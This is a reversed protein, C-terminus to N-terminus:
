SYSNEFFLGKSFYKDTNPTINNGSYLGIDNPRVADAVIVIMRHYNDSNKIIGPVGIFLRKSYKDVIWNINITNKFKLKEHDTFEYYIM